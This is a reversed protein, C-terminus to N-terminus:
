IIRRRQDLLKETSDSSSPTTSYHQAPLSCCSVFIQDASSDSSLFSGEPIEDGPWGYDKYVWAKWDDLENDVSALSPHVPSTMATNLIRYNYKPDIM